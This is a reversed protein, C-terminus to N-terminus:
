KSWLLFCYFCNCLLNGHSKVSASPHSFWSAGGAAAGGNLEAESPSVGAFASFFLHSLLIRTTQIQTSDVSEVCTNILILCIIEGLKKADKRWGARGKYFGRIGGNARCSTPSTHRAVNGLRLRQCLLGLYDARLPSLGPCVTVTRRAVGDLALVLDALYRLVVGEVELLRTM